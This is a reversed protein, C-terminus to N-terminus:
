AIGVGHQHGVCGLAINSVYNGNNDTNWVTYHGASAIRGPLRM